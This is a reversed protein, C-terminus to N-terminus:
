ELSEGYAPSYVFYFPTGDASTITGARLSFSLFRGLFQELAPLGWTTDDPKFPFDSGDGNPNPAHLYMADQGAHAADLELWLQFPEGYNAMDRVLAMFVMCLAVIHPRRHKWGLNGYGPFDAHYHWWDSRRDPELVRSFAQANRQVNRYHRKQGRIRRRAVYRPGPPLLRAVLSEAELDTM